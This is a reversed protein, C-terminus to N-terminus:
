EQNNRIIGLLELSVVIRIIASYELENKIICIIRMTRIIALIHMDTDLDFTNYAHRAVLQHQQLLTRRRRCVVHVPLGKSGGVHHQM